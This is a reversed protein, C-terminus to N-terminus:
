RDDVEERRRVDFRRNHLEIAQRILRYLGAAFGVVAGTVTWAPRPGYQADLWIGGALLAVFITIFEVGVSVYRIVDSRPDRPQSM